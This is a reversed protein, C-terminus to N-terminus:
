APPEALTLKAAADDNLRLNAILIEGAQSRRTGLDPPQIYIGELKDPPKRGLAAIRGVVALRIGVRKSV